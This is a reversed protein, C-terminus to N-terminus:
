PITGGEEQSIAADSSARSQSFGPLRDRCLYRYERATSEVNFDGKSTISSGGSSLRPGLKKGM